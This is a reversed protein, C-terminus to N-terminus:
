RHFFTGNQDAYMFDESMPKYIFSQIIKKQKTLSVMVAFKEKSKAFNNTGDIPDVTWCYNDSLYYSLISPKKAYTEEGIFNSNKILKKFINSLELEVAIDIETVIDKGNKFSIQNKALNGFSPLIIKKSINYLIERLDNPNIM